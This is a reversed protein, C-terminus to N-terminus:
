ELFIELLGAPPDFKIRQRKIDFSVVMEDVAPILVEKGEMEIVFLPNADNDVFDTVTGELKGYGKFTATFGVLDEMYFEGDESEDSATRIYLEHSLLESARAATDIDAFRVIAGSNGRRAFSEIFLPVTLSDITAFLPGKEDPVDAFSDYLNLVVEGELGFLKAVKAVPTRNEM